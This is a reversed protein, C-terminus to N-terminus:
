YSKTTQKTNAVFTKNTGKLQIEGCNEWDGNSYVKTIYGKANHEKMAKKAEPLRYFEEHYNEEKNIVTYIKM